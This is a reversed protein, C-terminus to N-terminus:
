RRLLRQEIHQPPEAHRGQSLRHHGLHVARQHGSRRVAPGGGGGARGRRAHDRGTSEVRSLRLVVSELAPCAPRVEEIMAAFDSGKFSPAAVLLRVGAQRLVFELEHTRYAPNINVLVVGVTATTYQVLTWEPCNPAWIGVRDGRSLGAHLLGTALGDVARGFEAYTWRQGSPVDVLAEHNAFAAVTRRLNIGITDGLLPTDSVGSAYSPLGASM